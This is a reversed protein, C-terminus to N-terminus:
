KRLEFYGVSAHIPGMRVHIKGLFRNPEVEVIEDLISRLWVPNGPIDYDIKIVQVPDSLGRDVRTKFPYLRDVGQPTKMLNKGTATRADFTKGIWDGSYGAVSGKYDGDPLQRPISGRVFVSQNPSRRTRLDRWVLVAAGVFAIGAAVAAPIRVWRSAFM